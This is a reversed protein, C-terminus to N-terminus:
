FHRPFIKLFSTSFFQRIKQFAAFSVCFSLFFIFLGAKKHKVCANNKFFNTSFCFYLLFSFSKLLCSFYSIGITIQSKL